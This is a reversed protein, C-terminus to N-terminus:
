EPGRDGLGKADLQRQLDRMRRRESEPLQPIEPIKITPMKFKPVEAPMRFESAGVEFEEVESELGRNDIYKVRLRAKGSSATGALRQMNERSVGAVAWRMAAGQIRFSDAETWVKGDLSYLIKTAHLDLVYIEQQLPHFQILAVTRLSDNASASLRHRAEDLRGAALSKDIYYRGVDEQEALALAQQLYRRERAEAIKSRDAMEQASYCDALELYVPVFATHKEKFEELGLRRGEGRLLRLAVLAYTLNNPFPECTKRFQKAAEPGAQAKLFQLYAAPPDLLEENMALCQEYATVAEEPRGEQEYQRALRYFEGPSSPAPTETNPQNNFLIAATVAAFVGLGLLVTVIGLSGLRRPRNALWSRLSQALDGASLYRSAPDKALCRLCIEQLEEPIEQRITKPSPPENGLIQNRLEATNEAEFPLRGTLLEYFVVGLGYIDAKPDPRQNDGSIAEPAMYPLTGFPRRASPIEHVSAAIGFDALYPRGTRDLLINSPKLDRHVFGQQHAYHLPEAVDAILRAAEEPSPQRTDLMRSLDTGDILQSVIFWRGESQGVDLVPVIGQHRLNAVKRAEALFADLDTPAARDPRPVKIAVHRNLHPDFAKWVEGFGGEGIREQLQYRGLSDPQGEEQAPRLLPNSDGVEEEGAEEMWQMAKLQQIRRRVEPLLDPWDKCVEEPSMDEGQALSDEWLLLLDIVDPRDTM